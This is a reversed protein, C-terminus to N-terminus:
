WKSWGRAQDKRSRRHFGRVCLFVSVGLRHGRDKLECLGDLVGPYAQTLQFCSTDYEEKFISVLDTLVREQQIGAVKALTERLPPGILTRDIPAIAKIGKRALTNTLAAAVGTYSDVLTGDLDFLIDM